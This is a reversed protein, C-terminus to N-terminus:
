SATTPPQKEEKRPPQRPHDALFRGILAGLDDALRLQAAPPTSRTAEAHADRRPQKKGKLSNM